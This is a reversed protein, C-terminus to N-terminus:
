LGHCKQRVKRLGGMAGPKGMLRAHRIRWWVM